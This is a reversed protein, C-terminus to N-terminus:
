GILIILHHNLLTHYAFYGFRYFYGGFIALFFGLIAVLLWFLWLYGFYGFTALIVMHLWFLLSTMLGLLLWVTLFLWLKIISDSVEFFLLFVM